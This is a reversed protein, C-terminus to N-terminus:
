QSKKSFFLAVLTGIVITAVAGIFTLAVSGYLVGEIFTLIAAAMNLTSNANIAHSALLGYQFFACFGSAIVAVGVAVKWILKAIGTLSGDANFFVPKFITGFVVTCVIGGITAIFGQAVAWLIFVGFWTGVTATSTVGTGAGMFVGGLAVILSARTAVLASLLLDAVVFLTVLLGLGSKKTNM